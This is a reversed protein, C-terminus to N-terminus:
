PIYIVTLIRDVQNGSFDTAVIELVNPGEELDMTASFAGEDGVDVINGNISVTADLTATGSITIPSQTIISENEPEIIELYISEAPAPTVPVVQQTPSLPPISPVPIAPTGPTEPIIPALTVEPIAPTISSPGEVKDQCGTITLLLILVFAILLFLPYISSIRARYKIPTAQKM